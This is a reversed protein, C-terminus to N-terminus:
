LGESLKYVLRNEIIDDMWDFYPELLIEDSAHQGCELMYVLKVHSSNFSVGILDEGHLNFRESLSKFNNFTFEELHNLYGRVTKRLQELESRMMGGM